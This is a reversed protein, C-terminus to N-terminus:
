LGGSLEENPESSHLVSLHESPWGLETTQAGDRRATNRRQMAGEGMTWHKAAADARTARNSGKTGARQTAREDKTLRRTAYSSM